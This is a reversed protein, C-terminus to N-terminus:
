PSVSPPKPEPKKPESPRPNLGSGVGGLPRGQTVPPFIRVHTSRSEGRYAEDREDYGDRSLHAAAASARRTTTTRAVVEDSFFGYSCPLGDALFSLALGLLWRFLPASLFAPKSYLRRHSNPDYYVAVPSGVCYRESVSYSYRVLPSHAGDSASSIESHTVQGTVHPWTSSARAYIVSRAGSAAVGFGIAVFILLFITSFSM